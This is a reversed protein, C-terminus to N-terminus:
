GFIAAARRLQPRFWSILAAALLLFWPVMAVAHPWPELVDYYRYFSYGLLWTEVTLMAFWTTLLDYRLFIWAFFLGQLASTLYLPVTPYFATGPLAATCATWLLTVCVLALPTRLSARKLLSLPLGVLLWSTLLPALVILAFGAASIELDNNLGAHMLDLSTVAWKLKELILLALLHVAAYVWGLLAGRTVALAAPERRLELFTKLKDPLTRFLYDLPLSFLGYFLIMGVPIAAAAALLAWAGVEREWTKLMVLPLPLAATFSLAWLFAVNRKYLGRFVTLTITVAGLFLLLGVSWAFTTNWSLNRLYYNSDFVWDPQLPRRGLSVIRDRLVVVNVTERYTTGAVPLEWFLPTRGGPFTTPFGAAVNEPARWIKRDADYVYPVPSIGHLRLGLVEELKREVLPTADAISTPVSPTEPRQTRDWGYTVKGERNFTVVGSQCSVSWSAEWASVGALKDLGNFLTSGSSDMLARPDVVARCDVPKNEPWLTELARSGNALTAERTATPAYFAYPMAREFLPFFAFAAVLAAGLLMWDFRRWRALELPLDTNELSVSEAPAAARVPGPADLAALVEEATQFRDKPDKELCKLIVREIHEPLYPEIERPPRPVARIQMMATAIPTEARFCMSGTFIEYLILGFSYIDSRVDSPAGEAQEPSMYAPTGLMVGQRTMTSEATRALGFDMIKLTGDRAIMINEPKLDRHSVGQAHAEVLGALMQRALQLGYRISVGAPREVVRRLSEGEVFEMSICAADGERHFEHIRCVNKHTIKRALRLENKFRELAVADAAIDPRLIKVAVLEGTERDRAKLVVGMGGEGLKSVQEYRAPLSYAGSGGAPSASGDM